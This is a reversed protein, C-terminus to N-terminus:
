YAALVSIIDVMHRKVFNPVMLVFAFALFSAARNWLFDAVHCLSLYPALCLLFMDWAITAQYATFPKELLFSVFHVALREKSQSTDM